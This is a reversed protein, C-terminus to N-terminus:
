VVRRHSTNHPLSGVTRTAVVVTDLRAANRERYMVELSCEKAFVSAMYMSYRVCGLKGIM